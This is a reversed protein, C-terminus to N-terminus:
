YKDIHTILILFVPNTDLPALTVEYPSPLEKARTKWGEKSLTVIFLDKHTSMKCRGAKCGM